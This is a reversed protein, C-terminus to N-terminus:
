LRHLNGIRFVREEQPLCLVFGTRKREIRILEIGCYAGGEESAHDQVEEKNYRYKTM